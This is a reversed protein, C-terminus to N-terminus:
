FTRTRCFLQMAPQFVLRVAERDLFRPFVRIRADSQSASHLLDEAEKTVPLGAIVLETHPATYGRFEAILNDIGNYSRILGFSLYV